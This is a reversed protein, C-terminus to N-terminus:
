ALVGIKKRLSKVILMLSFFKVTCVLHFVCWVILLVLSHAVCMWWQIPFRYVILIMITIGYKKLLCHSIRITFHPLCVLVLLYLVSWGYQCM